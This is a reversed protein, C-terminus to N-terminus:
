QSARLWVTRLDLTTEVLPGDGDRVRVIMMRQSEGPIQDHAIDPLAAHANQLAENDDLFDLGESDIMWGDGDFTDFYYQM